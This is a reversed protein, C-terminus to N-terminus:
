YTLAVKETTYRSDQLRAGGPGADGDKGEALQYTGCVLIRQHGEAIGWEVADASYETDLRQITRVTSPGSM